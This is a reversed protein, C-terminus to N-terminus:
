ASSKAPSSRLLGLSVLSRGRAASTDQEILEGVLKAGIWGPSSRQEEKFYLSYSQTTAGQM